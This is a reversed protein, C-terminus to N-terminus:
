NRGRGRSLAESECWACCGDVMMVIEGCRGCWGESVGEMSVPGAVEDLAVGIVLCIADAHRLSIWGRRGAEWWRRAMGSGRPTTSRGLVADVAPWLDHASMGAAALYRAVADALPGIPVREAQPVGGTPLRRPVTTSM